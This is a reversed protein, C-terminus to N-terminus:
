KTAELQNLCIGCPCPKNHVLNECFSRNNLLTGNYKWERRLDEFSLYECLLLDSLRLYSRPGDGFQAPYFEFISGVVRGNANERAEQKIERGDPHHLYGLDLMDAIEDDGFKELM